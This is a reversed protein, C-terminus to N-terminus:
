VGTEGAKSERSWKHDWLKIIEARESKRLLYFGYVCLCAEFVAICVATWNPIDKVGNEEVGKIAMFSLLDHAFHMLCLVWVNGKRLYVASFFVGFFLTLMVQYLINTVQDGNVLNTLHTLGFLVGSVVAMLPIRKEAMMKKAMFSIAIERFCVEEVLGAMLAMAVTDLGVARFPIGGALYGFMGFLLAWYILIPSILVFSDRIDGKEPMFRYEQSFWRYWILLVLASGICGGISTGATRDIRLFSLAFMIPIGILFESVLFGGFTFILLSLVPHKDSFMHKNKM